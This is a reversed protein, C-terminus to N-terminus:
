LLQVTNHNHNKHLIIGKEYIFDINLIKAKKFFDYDM